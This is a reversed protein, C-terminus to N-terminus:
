MSTEHLNNRRQGREANVTALMHSVNRTHYARSTVMPHSSQVSPSLVNFHNTKHSIGVNNLNINLKRKKLVEQYESASRSQEESIHSAGDTQGM